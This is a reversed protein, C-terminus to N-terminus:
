DENLRLLQSMAPRSVIRIMMGLAIICIVVLVVFAIGLSYPIIVHAPLVHQLTFFSSSTSNATANGGVPVSTFTLTPVVTYALLAGFLIGLVVATVYMIIQEWVLVSVVQRPDTGLARLIAFNTLRARASTWSSLLSGVLALLLATSAGLGLVGVLNLSLPDSQMATQLAWRDQMNMLRLNSTVLAMRLQHLATPNDSSQLWAHNVSLNSTSSTAHLVDELTQFDSLLGGEVDQQSSIQIADNVTPIHAVKGVVVYTLNDAGPIASNISFTSGTQLHLTNWTIQDVVVPVKKQAMGYAHRSALLQMVSALAQSNSTPWSGVRAFTSSDIAQVQLHVVPSTGASIGQATFGVSSAKVGPLHQYAAETQGVQNSTPLTYASTIAGSFDAGAQYSAADITHQTQTATFVLTFIAFASALSLLLIMRLAQRPARAMQALALMSAAGKGRMAITAALRLLLPFIRLFLLVGAILLFIPAILVLPTSITARTQEDLQGGINVVYLSIGYGVLAIVAAVLDLNLRQWLPKRTARTAERRIALVDMRTPGILSLVMAVVAILAALLAYWWIDQIIRGPNSLFAPIADRSDAPLFREASLAVGVVALVPGVIFAIISLLVSQTALAGFVQRRSAGRSRLVAIADAQREVLLEAMMSVFILVLILIQLALIAVPIREISIHARYQSLIGPGNSTDLTAGAMEVKQLYPYSPTVSVQDSQNLKGYKNTISAQVGAIQNSLDDLSNVTIRAPNIHYYWQLTYSQNFLLVDNIVNHQAVQDMSHLFATNPVLATYISWGSALTPEFSTGQWFTDNASTPQFLGVVRMSLPFTSAVSADASKMFSFQVTIRTGIGAHMRAASAPTLMTELESSNEQPLRGTVLAIHTAAQTISSGFLQVEDGQKRPKPSLLTSGPVQITLQPQPNLYQQLPGQFLPIQQQMDHLAHSSLGATAVNLQLTNNEPAAKLTSRLGSTATIESFLPITCIIMVAAVMGLGIIFLLYGSQRWRWKALTFTSPLTASPRKQPLTKTTSAM